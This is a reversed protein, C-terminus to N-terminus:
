LEKPVFTKGARGARSADRARALVADRYHDARAGGGNYARIAAKWSKRSRRKSFLWRIAAHVWFDYDVNKSPSGPPVTAFFETVAAAFGADAWMFEEANAAAHSDRELNQIGYKAVLTPQEEKILTLMAAASSDIMQGINHRTKVKPDSEAPDELHEGATGMQSEQFIMSKVLNPDLPMKGSSGDFNFLANYHDVWRRISADFRNLMSSQILRKNLLRQRNAQLRELEAVVAARGGGRRGQEDSLAREGREFDGVVKVLGVDYQAVGSVPPTSSRLAKKPVDITTGASAHPAAVKVEVTSLANDWTVVSVADGVRLSVTGITLARSVQFTTGTM